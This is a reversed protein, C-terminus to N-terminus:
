KVEHRIAGILRGSDVLPNSSNKREVTMSSNSPSRLDRIRKQILGAFELGVANKFVDSNVRSSLIAPLLEEMKNTIDNINEDFGSRLFSREPIVIKTTTMKLPYGNAAFWGRMKDTVPIETGYEHVGAIMALESDDAGFVGVKIEDKSLKEFNKILSRVNSEDRVVIRM